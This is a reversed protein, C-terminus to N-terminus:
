LFDVFLVILSASLHAVEGITHLKLIVNVIAATEPADGSSILCHQPPKKIDCNVAKRCTEVSVVSFRLHSGKVQKWVEM